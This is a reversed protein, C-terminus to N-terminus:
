ESESVRERKRERGEKERERVRRRMENEYMLCGAVVTVLSKWLDDSNETGM